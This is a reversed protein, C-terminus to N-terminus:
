EKKKLYSFKKPLRSDEALHLVQRLSKRSLRRPRPILLSRSPDESGTLPLADEVRGLPQDGLFPQAPAVISPM